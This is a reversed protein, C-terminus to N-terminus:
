YLERGNHALSGGSVIASDSPLVIDADFLLHYLM